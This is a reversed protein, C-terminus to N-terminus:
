RLKETLLTVLIEFSGLLEFGFYTVFELLLNFKDLIDNIVSVNTFIWDVPHILYTIKLESDWYYTKNQTTM